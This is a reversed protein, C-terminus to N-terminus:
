RVQGQLGPFGVGRGVIRLRADPIQRLVSPMSEILHDIGKYGDATSLRSISLIYPAGTSPSPPLQPSLFPDLANPLLKLRDEPISIHELVRRRTFDSVCWVGTAGRLAVRELFTFSRWVEIGHAILYYKASPNLRAAAWALPLQAVHGCVIRDAKRGMRLGARAFAFKNKDCIEWEVLSANTYRKLDSSDVLRDNLSLFAVPDGDKSLECIAKLYLRLIRPIGGGGTFLEPAFLITRM